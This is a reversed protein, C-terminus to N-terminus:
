RRWPRRGRGLCRRRCRWLMWAADLWIVTRGYLHRRLDLRTLATPPFPSTLWDIGATPTRPPSVHGTDVREAGLAELRAVEAALDDTHIDVHVRASGADGLRQVLLVDALGALVVGHFAPYQEIHTLPQGTAVSAALTTSASRYRM